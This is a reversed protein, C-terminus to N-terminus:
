FGSPAGSVKAQSKSNVQMFPGWNSAINVNLNENNGKALLASSRVIIDDGDELNFPAKLLSSMPLIAEVDHIKTGTNDNTFIKGYFPQFSNDKARV